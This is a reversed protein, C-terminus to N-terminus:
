KEEEEEEDDDDDDSGFDDSDSDGFGDFDDLDDLGDGEKCSLKLRQLFAMLDQTGIKAKDEDEDEVEKSDGPRTDKYEKDKKKKDKDKKTGKEMFRLFTRRKREPLSKLMAQMEQDMKLQEEPTPEPEVLEEKKGCKPCVGNKDACPKCMIHYAHKVCKQSCKTCTAAAKLPKFKKYKIKWDLISKCRACVNSIHLNNLVKTQVTKDYLDNKFARTNQYKQARKRTSEGKRTSM